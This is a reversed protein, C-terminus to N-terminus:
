LNKDNFVAEAGEEPSAERLIKWFAIGAMCEHLCALTRLAEEASREWPLDAIERPVIGMGDYFLWLVRGAAVLGWAYYLYGGRLAIATLLIPASLAISITDGVSSILIIFAYSKGELMEPLAKLMAPGSILLGLSLGALIMGIRRRRGGLELLGAEDSLWAMMWAGVVSSLNALVVLTYRMPLYVGIGTLTQQVVPVLAAFDRTMLFAFTGAEFLFAKRLYAGREFSLAGLCLGGLTVAKIAFSIWDFARGHHPEGYFLYTHAGILIVTILWPWLFLRKLNM